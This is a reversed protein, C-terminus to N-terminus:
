GQGPGGARSFADLVVVAQVQGAQVQGSQWTLSESSVAIARALGGLGALACFVESQQGAFTLQIQWSQAGSPGGVSSTPAWSSSSWSAHCSNALASVQGTFGVQDEQAPLAAEAVQLQRLWRGQAAKVAQGSQWAADDALALSDDKVAAARWASARDAAIRAGIAMLVVVAALLAVLRAERRLWGRQGQGAM